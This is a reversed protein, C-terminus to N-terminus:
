MDTVIELIDIDAKKKKREQKLTIMFEELGVTEDCDKKNRIRLNKIM